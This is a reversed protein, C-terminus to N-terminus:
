SILIYESWLASEDVQFPELGFMLTGDIWKIPMDEDLEDDLFILDKDETIMNLMEIMSYKTM